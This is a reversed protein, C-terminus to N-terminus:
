EKGTVRAKLKGHALSAEIEDGLAVSGADTVIAGDPRTVMAFGRALTALPSATNLTTIALNLRHEKRAFYAQPIQALSKASQASQQEKRGFYEKWAHLLRADLKVHRSQFERVLQLPSHQVLRTRLEGVRNRDSHITARMSHALRQELDDLRRVQQTLRLGPHAANLRQTAHSLRKEITRLERGV